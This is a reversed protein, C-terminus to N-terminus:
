YYLWIVGLLNVILEKIDDFIQTTKQYEGKTLHVIYIYKIKKM